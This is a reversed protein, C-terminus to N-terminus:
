TGFDAFAGTTCLTFCTILLVVGLFVLIGHFLLTYLLAM